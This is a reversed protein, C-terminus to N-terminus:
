SILNILEARVWGVMKGGTGCVGLGAGLGEKRRGGLEVARTRLEFGQWVAGGMDHVREGQGHVQLQM